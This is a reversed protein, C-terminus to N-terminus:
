DNNKYKILKFYEKKALRYANYTKTSYKSPLAPVTSFVMGLHKLFSKELYKPPSDSAQKM